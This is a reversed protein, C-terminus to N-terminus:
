RSADSAGISRGLIGPMARIIWMGVIVSFCLLLILVGVSQAEAQNFEISREYALIPITRPRNAMIRLAGFEGMARFWTLIVGILIGRLSMPLTIRGFASLTSAGLTRAVNEYRVDVGSFSVMAARILFPSGVFLQVAVIGYLSDYFRIGFHQELYAGFPSKPGVFSLIVIGAIPPPVVIPLDILTDLLRRGPFRVRVLAYAFPVGFVLVIATASLSTQLSVRLASRVDAEHVRQQIDQASSQTCFYVVPILLCALLMLGMLHCVPVFRQRDRRWAQVFPPLTTYLLSTLIFAPFLYAPAFRQSLLFLFLYGLLRPHHILSAYVVVAMVLLLTNENMVTLLPWLLAVMVAYGLVIWVVRRVTVRRGTMTVAALLYLNSVFLALNLVPRLREPPYGADRDVTVRPWFLALAVHFGILAATGALMILMSSRLPGQECSRTGNTGGSPGFGQQPNSTM